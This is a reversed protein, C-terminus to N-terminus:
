LDLINPIDKKLLPLDIKPPKSKENQNYICLFLIPMLNANQCTFVLKSL